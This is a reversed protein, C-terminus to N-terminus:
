FMRSLFFFILMALVILIIAAKDSMGTFESPVIVNVRIDKEISGIGKSQLFQSTVRIKMSHSGLSSGYAVAYLVKTSLPPLEVRVNRKDSSIWKIEPDVTENFLFHAFEYESINIDITDISPIFSFLKVTLIEKRGLQIILDAPSISVIDEPSIVRIHVEDSGVAGREDEVELRIVYDGSSEFIRSIEQRKYM